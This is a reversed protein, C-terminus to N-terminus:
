HPPRSAPRHPQSTHSALRAHGSRRGSRQLHQPTLQRLEKAKRHRRRRRNLPELARGLSAIRAGEKGVAGIVAFRDRCIQKHRCAIPGERGHEDMVLVVAFVVEALALRGADRTVRHLRKPRSQGAAPDCHQRRVGDAKLVATAVPRPTFGVLHGVPKLVM